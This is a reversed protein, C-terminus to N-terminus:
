LGLKEAIKKVAESSLSQGKQLATKGKNFDTIGVEPVPFQIVLDIGSLQPSRNTVFEATMFQWLPSNRLDPNTDSVSLSNVFVIYDVGQSRMADSVMKVSFPAATTKQHSGMVPPLGMCFPVVSELPGRSLLLARKTETQFAPCSFNIKSSEVRRSGFVEKLFDKLDGPNKSSSSILGRTSLDTEKLKSLQWEVDFGQGKQAYVAAVLAGFEIGSIASVSIKQKALEQLFPSYSFTKMGGPGLIIGLNKPKVPSQNESVTETDDSKEENLVQSSDSGSQLKVDPKSTKLKTQCSSLFAAILIYVLINKM